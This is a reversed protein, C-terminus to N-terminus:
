GQNRREVARNRLEGPELGLEGMMRANGVAVRHGDVVGSVGRGTISAFNEVPALELGRAEAAAVIAAGLPHESARELSAALRLLTDEDFGRATTASVFQPKGETLTGTKDVVITDVKELRELAEAKRVLVGALAGRGTGVMISMPTALGLACPCAIILVAVANVVAYAFTPEPGFALWAAFTVVAIVIVAQVFWGAVADAIGQIPARSRQAESVMAVIKALLTESGVREARMLLSGTGNITAGTVPDGARKTVPMPEGTIMSEDVSSTGEIVVGDVPIKEGPRVRLRDGPKVEELPVDVESGDDRVLRATTPALGLLARIADGTRARAGLELVEGLVVLTIIVAATEFYLHVAGDVDRMSAPFLEPALVGVVSYLYAVATGLGILTYMNPSRHVVSAWARVLFPWGSWLMVPTALAFQIWALVRRDVAALPNSPLLEAMAILFLPLTFALGVWFRTIMRRYAPDPADTQQGAMPELAMGCLPCDGPGDRVIQPHM